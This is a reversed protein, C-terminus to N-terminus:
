ADIKLHEGDFLRYGIKPTFISETLHINVSTQNLDTFPLGKNDGLKVWFFDVPMVFRGKDAEVAIPILGKLTHWVDSFPVHIGANHGLVGVTGHIGPFWGYISVAVRWDDGGSSGTPYQPAPAPADPVAPADATTAPSAATLDAPGQAFAPLSFLLSLALGVFVGLFMKRSFKMADGQTRSQVKDYSRHQKKRFVM